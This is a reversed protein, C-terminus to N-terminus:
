RGLASVEVPGGPLKITGLEQRTILGANNAATVVMQLETGAQFPGLEANFWTQDYFNGRSYAMVMTAFTAGGDTTYQVQLGSAEQIGVPDFATANVMVRGNPMPSASVNTLEPPTESAVLFWEDKDVVAHSQADKLAIEIDALSGSTLASPTNVILHGSVSKGPALKVRHGSAPSASLQWGEPLATHDIELVADLDRDTPNKIEYRYFNMGPQAQQNANMTKVALNDLANADAGQTRIHARLKYRQNLRDLQDFMLNMLRFGKTQVLVGELGGDDRAPVVVPRPETALMTAGDASALELWVEGHGPQSGRNQVLVELELVKETNRWAVLINPRSGLGRSVGLDVAKEAAFTSFPFLLSLVTLLGTARSKM